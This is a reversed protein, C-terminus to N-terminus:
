CVSGSTNLDEIAALVGGEILKALAGSHNVLGKDQKKIKQRGSVHRVM